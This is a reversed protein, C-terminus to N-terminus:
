EQRRLADVIAIRAASWGPVASAGAGIAAAFFLTTLATSMQFGLGSLFGLNSLAKGFGILTPRAIVIGLLGGITGLLAGETLAIAHVHKPLFGIARMAGLEATRERLGMALTNGLILAMIALIVGSVVELASLIASSGKVFQLRFAKETETHTENDSNAFFGDIQRAVEPSRSADAVTTTYVGVQDKRREPLGENLRQWHFYMTNSVSVDDTGEVIGAVKFRWDGPYIESSLPITDGVKFGFREALTKGVICSSRDEFFAQQTGQVFRVSFVDLATKPDVAFQAFFNRPDKYVGGFWNSYTVKTVGPIAAIRDRYSLPLPQIIAIANRTVLRDAASAESSAYWASLVTRIFVFALATVMTGLITLFARTKNRLLANRVALGGLTV